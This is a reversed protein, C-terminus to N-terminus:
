EGRYQGQSFRFRTFYNRDWRRATTGARRGTFTEVTLRYRISAMRKKGCFLRMSGTVFNSQDRWMQIVANAVRNALM